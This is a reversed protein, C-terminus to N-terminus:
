VIDRTWAKKTYNEPGRETMQEDCKMLYHIAVQDNENVRLVDTFTKRAEEFDRVLYLDVGREFMEKTSIYLDRRYQNTSDIMEYIDTSGENSINGVKGIFRYNYTGNKELNGIIAKTAVHRIGISNIQTDINFMQMIEDSVVIIGRRKETGSVGVLVDGAGLTINMNQKIVDNIAVEKFQMSANFADKASEPFLMVADLGDFSQVVGNNKEVIKFLETYTENLATFIGDEDKFNFSGKCSINFTVYIMNMNLVNHDHLKVQTIKAKDMFKFLETPVYRVYEKNLKILNSTYRNIKESMVNFAEAIDAFEDRSAIKIRSTWEGKGVSSLGKEIQKLPKLSWWVVFIIYGFILLTIILIIALAHNFIRWFEKSRHIEEDLFNGVLGVVNGNTDKIAVFSAFMDGNVDRFIAEVSDSTGRKGSLENWASYIAENEDRELVCDVMTCESAVMDPDVYKLRDYSGSDATFRTNVSSYLKNYKEFYTILYDSRDGIKLAVDNYGTIVSNKLKIYGPSMFGTVHDLTSFESGAIHDAVTKAGREQESRLISMHETVADNTNIYVLTAMAAFYVPLFMAVIKIGLPVRRIELRSLYRVGYFLGVVLVAAALMILIGWPFFAGRLDTMILDNNGFRVHFPNDFAKSAAYFDNEGISKIRRLDKVKIGDTGAVSSELGYVAEALISKTNLKYFNGSLANTFYVNDSSDVSMGAVLLQTGSLVSSYNIFEGNNDMAYFEGNKTGYFVRGNSVVAMDSVWEVSRDSTETPPKVEFSKIKRPSEDLFPRAAIVDYIHDRCAIITLNEDVSQLKKIYNNVPPNAEKSFDINAIQKVENGNTDYMMISENRVPYMSKDAVVASLDRQHKVFYFNGKSDVELNSYSYDYKDNSRELKVQYATSGSPNIKTIKFENKSRDVGLVYVSGGSDMDSNLFTGFDPKNIFYQLLFGLILVLGILVSYRVSPKAFTQSLKKMNGQGSKPTKSKM